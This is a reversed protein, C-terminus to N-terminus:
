KKGGLAQRMAMGKALCEDWEKRPDSDAVIGAGTQYSLHNGCRQFSRILINLDMEGGVGIYGASGTYTGRGVPELEDIIEMCRKKPVGTITGGPFAARILDFPGCGENLLGRVNSVIHTVHSYRELVMLEDVEVSGARCVKGLDNRELDLLMVHEAREKPHGLLERGLRVDEPPTFGRPRTGAIPRTEAVGDRLSVLREPSSSIIEVEPSRLLCAFPSPNIRRLRAYLDEAPGSWRTDFRCSLNAQYIDGAAIYEKAARVMGAFDEPSLVPRPPPPPEWAPTPPPDAHAERIAEELAELDDRGDLSSLTLTGEHHDYAATLDVWDLWLAPLPLDRRARRPLSEIRGALDYAFFGFFGGPFPTPAPPKEIRRAQLIAGLVAFPDGPMARRLGNEIRVLGNEDLRYSEASRLAVVSYRGIRTNGGGSELFGPGGDSLQRHVTLPDFFPLAFSRQNPAM